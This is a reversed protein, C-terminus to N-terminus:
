TKALDDAIAAQVSRLAADMAARTPLDRSVRAPICSIASTIAAVLHDLAAQAEDDAVMERREAMLALESAEARAAKAQEQAAALSSNRAKSRVHEIFARTAPILAVRGPGARQIAGARIMAEVEGPQAMVLVKFTEVTCLTPDPRSTM